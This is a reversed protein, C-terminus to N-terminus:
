RQRSFQEEYTERSIRTTLEVSESKDPYKYEIQPKPPPEVVVDKMSFLIDGIKVQDDKKFNMKNITGKHPAKIDVFLGNGRIIIM